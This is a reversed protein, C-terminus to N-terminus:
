HDDVPYSFQQVSFPACRAHAFNSCKGVQVSLGPVVFVWEPRKEWNPCAYDPPQWGNQIGLKEYSVGNRGGRLRRRMWGCSGFGPERLKKKQKKERSTITEIRQVEVRM